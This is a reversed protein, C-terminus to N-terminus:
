LVIVAISVLQASSFFLHPLLFQQSMQLENDITTRPPPCWSVEFINIWFKEQGGPFAPVFLPASVSPFTM